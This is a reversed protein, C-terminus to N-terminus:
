QDINVNVYQNTNPDNYMISKSSCLVYSALKTNTERIYLHLNGVSDPFLYMNCEKCLQYYKRLFDELEITM